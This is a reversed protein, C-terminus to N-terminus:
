MVGEAERGRERERERDGEEVYYIKFWKTYSTCHHSCVKTEVVNVGYLIM